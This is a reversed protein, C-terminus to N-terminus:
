PTPPPGSAVTHRERRAQNIEKAPLRGELVVQSALRLLTLDLTDSAQSLMAFAESSQIRYRGMVIGLATAVRSTSGLPIEQRTRHLDNVLEAATPAALCAFRAIKEVEQDGFAAPSSSYFNLLARSEGDLPIRVSLLSRVGIVTACMKSFEPWREDTALDQSLLISKSSSEVFPGQQLEYQLWDVRIPVDDTAAVTEPVGLAVLLTIGCHTGAGKPGVARAASRVLKHPDIADTRPSDSGNRPGSETPNDVPDRPNDENTM